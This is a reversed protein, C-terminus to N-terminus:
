DPKVRLADIFAKAEDLDVTHFLKEDSENFFEMFVFQKNRKFTRRIKIGVPDLREDGTGLRLDGKNIFLHRSAPISKGNNKLYRDAAKIPTLKRDPHDPDTMPEPLAAWLLVPTYTGKGVESQLHLDGLNPSKIDAAYGMMWDSDRQPIISDVLVGEGNLVNEFVKDSGYFHAVDDDATEFGFNCCSVRDLTHGTGNILYVGFEGSDPFDTADEGIWILRDAIVAYNMMKRKRLKRKPTNM